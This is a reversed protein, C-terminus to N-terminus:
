YKTSVAVLTALSTAPIEVITLIFLNLFTNGGMNGINYTLSLYTFASASSTLSLLITKYALGWRTFLSIYGYTNKQEELIKANIDILRAKLDFPKPRENVKAIHRFIKGSESTRGRRSLFWRPSEPVLKGGFFAAIM